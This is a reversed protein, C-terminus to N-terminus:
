RISNIFIFKSIQLHSIHSNVLRPINIFLNYAYSTCNIYIFKDSIVKTNNSARIQFGAKPSQGIELSGQRETDVSSEVSHNKM